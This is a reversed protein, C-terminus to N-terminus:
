NRKRKVPFESEERKKKQWLYSYSFIILLFIIFFLNQSSEVMADPLTAFVAIVVVTVGALFLFPYKKWITSNV